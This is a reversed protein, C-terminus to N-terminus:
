CGLRDTITADCVCQNVAACLVHVCPTAGSSANSRDGAVGHQLWCDARTTAVFTLFAHVERSGWLLDCCVVRCSVVRCLVVRVINLFDVSIRVIARDRPTAAHQKTVAQHIEEKPVDNGGGHMAARLGWGVLYVACFAAVSAGSDSLVVDRAGDGDGNEGLVAPSFSKLHSAIGIHVCETLSSLVSQTVIITLLATGVSRRLGMVFGRMASGRPATDAASNRRNTFAPLGARDDSESTRAATAASDSCPAGTAKVNCETKDMIVFVFFFLIATASAHMYFPVSFRGGTALPNGDDAFPDIGQVYGICLLALPGLVASGFSQILRLRTTFAIRNHVTQSLSSLMIYVVCNVAEVAAVVYALSALSSWCLLINLAAIIPLLLGLTMMDSKTRALAGGDGGGEGGGNGGCGDAKRRFCATVRAMLSPAAVLAVCIACYRLAQVFGFFSDDGGLDHVLLPLMIRTNTAGLTQLLMTMLLVSSVSINM